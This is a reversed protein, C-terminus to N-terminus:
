RTRSRAAENDGQLLALVGGVALAIVADTIEGPAGPQWTQAVSLVLLMAATAVTAVGLRVGAVTLLWILGGYLFGDSCVTRVDAAIPAGMMASFPVWGFTGPLGVFVFPALRVAIVLAAFAFLVLYRSVPLWRLAPWVVLAVAAGATDVPSLARDMLLGRVAFEVLALLPFLWVWRRLGVLSDILCAVMLWRVAARALMVPDIAFWHAHLLPAVAQWGGGGWGAAPVYPYLRDGAWMILLAMQVRAAGLDRTLAARRQQAVLALVCGLAVGVISAYVDAMKTARGAQQYHALQLWVSLALGGGLTLMTRVQAYVAPPLAFMALFGFPAFLLISTALNTPQNWDGATKLLSVVAGMDDGRDFSRFPYLSAYVICAVVFLFLFVYTRRNSVPWGGGRRDGARRDGGRRDGARREGDLWNGSM